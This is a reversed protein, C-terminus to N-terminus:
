MEVNWASGLFTRLGLALALGKECEEMVTPPPPAVWYLKQDLGSFAIPSLSSKCHSSVYHAPAIFSAGGGKPLQAVNLARM